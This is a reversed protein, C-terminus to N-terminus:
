NFGGYCGKLMVINSKPGIILDVVVVHSFYYNLTIFIWFFFMFYPKFNDLNLFKEM